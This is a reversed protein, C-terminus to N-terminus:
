ATVSLPALKKGLRFALENFEAETTPTFSDLGGGKEVGKPADSGGFLM